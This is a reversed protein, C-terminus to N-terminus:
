ILLTSRRGGQWISASYFLHSVTRECGGRGGTVMIVIVNATCFEELDKNSILPIVTCINLANLFYEYTTQVYFTVIQIQLKKKCFVNNNQFVM